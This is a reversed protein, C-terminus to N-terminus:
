SQGGPQSVVINPPLQLCAFLEDKAYGMQFAAEGAYIRRAHFRVVGPKWRELTLIEWGRLPELSTIVNHERNLRAEERALWRDYEEQSKPRWEAGNSYEM